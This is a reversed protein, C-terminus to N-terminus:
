FSELAEEVSKKLELLTKNSPDCKLGVKIWNMSQKYQKALAHGQAIWILLDIDNCENFGQDKMSEFGRTLHPVAKAGDPPKSILYTFGIWKDAEWATSDCQGWAEYYARSEAYKKQQSLSSALLKNVACNEPDLELVKTLYEATTEWDKLRMYAYAANLWTRANTSDAAIRKEFIEVAQNYASPDFKGLYYYTFGMDSLWTVDTSDVEWARKYDETAKVLAASDEKMGAYAKAREVFLEAEDKTWEHEPDEALVNEEYASLTEIAKDSQGSKAYAKGLDFYLDPREYGLDIAKEFHVAASDEYRLAQFAKALYYEAEAAEDPSMEIFKRFMWISNTYREIAKQQDSGGISMASLIFIKGALNYAEVYSSDLRIANGLGELAETYQKQALHSKGLRFHVEPNLSDCEELVRNYALISLAYAGKEYNADGLHMPYTCNEDDLFEATRFSKDAQSYQGMALYYLGIGDNFMAKERDKKAKDLGKEFLAKAEELRTTDRVIIKGLHYLSPLHNGKRDLAMEYYEEAKKEDHKKEYIFAIAYPYEVSRRRKEMGEEAKKIAEDYKKQDILKQIDDPIEDSALVSVTFCFLLMTTILIAFRTFTM